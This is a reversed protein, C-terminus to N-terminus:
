VALVQADFWVDEQNPALLVRWGPALGLYPEIQSCYERLHEHHLPRFFDSDTGLREGGWIFWGSTGAAPTHRVANLPLLALTDMAVGCKLFRNLPAFESGFREALARQAIDSM